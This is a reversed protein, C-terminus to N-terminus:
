RGRRPGSSREPPRSSGGRGSRRRSKWSSCSSSAGWDARTDPSSGMAGSAGTAPSSSASRITGVAKGVRQALTKDGLREALAGCTTTTGVPIGDLLAWVREQFVDGHTATPLDFSTRCGRFYEALQTMAASLLGDDAADVRAGFLSTSPRYWHHPFSLGTLANGAAVLTVGGIPTEVVAYRTDM